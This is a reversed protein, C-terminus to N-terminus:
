TRAKGATLSHRRIRPCAQDRKRARCSFGPDAFAGGLLADGRLDQFATDLFAPLSPARRVALRRAVGATVCAAGSISRMAKGPRARKTM